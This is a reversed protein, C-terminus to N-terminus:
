NKYLYLRWLRKLLPIASKGVRVTTSNDSLAKQPLLSKLEEVQSADLLNHMNFYALTEDLADPRNNSFDLIGMCDSDNAVPKLKQLDYKIKEFSAKEFDVPDYKVNKPTYKPGKLRSVNPSMQDLLKPWRKQLEKMSKVDLSIYSKPGKFKSSNEASLVNHQDIGLPILLDSPAMARSLKDMRIPSCLLKAFVNRDLGDFTSKNLRTPSKPTFRSKSWLYFRRLLIPEELTPQSRIPRPKSAKAESEIEVPKNWTVKNPKNKSSLIEIAGRLVSKKSAKM